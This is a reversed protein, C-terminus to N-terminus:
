FDSLSLKVDAKAWSAEFERKVWEADTEKGQAKLSELLVFLMRGNHPSRKVGDRAVKEAEGGKGARLLAASLSERLQFYWAPPEDYVFNDQFDVARAWHSVAEEASSALRAALVESAMEMVKRANNQGWAAAAPIKERLEEFINREREAGAKDGLGALAMARAYRWTALSSKMAEDPHPRKLITQWEGFRVYTLVPVSLFSDAMEPMAEAMPKMAANLEDAAKLADAKRGQMARAYMVFHLNHVYYPTYSGGMEETAALFERDVAVARENVTAAAEWDGLVLWIHGPMHVIHGAWPVIGMLRQSSAVAREPTRSSEVAHIYYHNAGPHQPWRRLVEELAHEADSVGPAAVGQADYWHWRVPIMLSEAYITQADPDDPYQEALKKMAAAYAEGRYEPCLSQAAHLYAAEREAANKLKLGADVAACAGKLDFSPDGDMNIYPGQALAMGWYPMPANPDLDAAKRFSRLAEYRNFGYALTLGQDFFRQAEASKTAISHHWNGLGQYLAVPKDAVATIALVLLLMGCRTKMQEGWTM